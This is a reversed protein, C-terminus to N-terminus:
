FQVPLLLTSNFISLPLKVRATTFVTFTTIELHQPIKKFFRSWTWCPKKRWVVLSTRLKHRQRAPTQRERQCRPHKPHTEKSAVNAPLCDGAPPPLNFDLNLVSHLQSGDYYQSWVLMLLIILSLLRVGLVYNDWRRIAFNSTVGVWSWTGIEWAHDFLKLWRQMLHYM